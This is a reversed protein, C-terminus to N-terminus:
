EVARTTKEMFGSITNFMTAFFYANSSQNVDFYEIHTVKHM